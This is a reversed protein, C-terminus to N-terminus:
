IVSSGEKAFFGSLNIWLLFHRAMEIYMFLPDVWTGTLRRVGMGTSAIADAMWILVEKLRWM